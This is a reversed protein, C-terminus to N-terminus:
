SIGYRKLKDYFTRLPMGLRAAAQRRNGGTTALAREIAHREIDTITTPAAADADAGMGAAVGFGARPDVQPLLALDDGDIVSADALIASRELVNALERVNGPWSAGALASRAGETLTLDPRALSVGIRRILYDALPGIDERRDRLAPLHVPFLSLRHYLDGRFSGEQVMQALNRNTAAVWRVDADVVQRGGVREFRKEQLVRLLKAQLPPALEGVEDLFFTGGDALEIRGRQRAHAGTFAGKEHGFLESELLEASLAACNVAVFPGAARASWRHVSRAALEKGVGSEGLLLVTAVTPAVKHLAQEIARMSSSGYGLPPDAASTAIERLARLRHHELARAVVHRLEVPSGVPKQLYDFAGEKMAQVASEISGHATLVIVEMESHERRIERLVAMGDMGPMRLDTLVVHFSRTAVLALAAAGDEAQVVTHGAGALADALFSRVGEEDDVVLISARDTANV